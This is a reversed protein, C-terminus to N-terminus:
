KLGWAESPNFWYATCFRYRCQGSEADFAELYMGCGEAGFVYVVGEAERLEIPAYGAAGLFIDRGAAWVRAKWAVHSDKGTFAALKFPFGGSRRVPPESSYLRL